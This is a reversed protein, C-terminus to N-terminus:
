DRHQGASEHDSRDPPYQRWHHQQQQRRRLRRGGHNHFHLDLKGPQGHGHGAAPQRGRHCEARRPRSREALREPDDRRRQFRVPSALLRVHDWRSRLRGPHQYQQPGARLRRDPRDHRDSRHGLPNTGDTVVLGDEATVKGTPDVSLNHDMSGTLTINANLAVTNTIVESGPENQSCGFGPNLSVDTKDADKVYTSGGAQPPRAADVSVYAPPSSRVPTWIPRPRSSSTAAPPPIM